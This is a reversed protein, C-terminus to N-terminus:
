SPQLSKWNLFEQKIHERFLSMPMSLSAGPDIKRKPAVENHGFILDPNVGKSCLWVCLDVLSREQVETFKEFRGSVLYSPDAERINIPSVRKGFWTKNDSLIGGSAIEIGVYLKSVSTRKTVPCQSMGAHYGWESLDFQQYVYGGKDIFFYLYGSFLAHEVASQGSQNIDGATYHVVIGEPFGKKYKGISSMRPLHPIYQAEPYFIKPRNSSLDARPKDRNFM